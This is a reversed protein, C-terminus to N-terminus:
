KELLHTTQVLSNGRGPNQRSYGPTTNLMKKQVRNETFQYNSAQDMHIIKLISEKAKM